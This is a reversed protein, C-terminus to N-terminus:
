ASSKEMEALRHKLCSITCKLLKTDKKLQHSRIIDLKTELEYIREELVVKRMQEALNM